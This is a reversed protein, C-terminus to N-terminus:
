TVMNIVFDATAALAYVGGFFAIEKDCAAIVIGGMCSLGGIAVCESLTLTVGGSIDYGVLAVASIATCIGIKNVLEQEM